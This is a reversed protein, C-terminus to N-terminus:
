RKYALIMDQYNLYVKRKCWSGYDVRKIEFGLQAYLNWILDEELGIVKEPVERSVTRYGDFKYKFDFDSNGADVLALSEEDLLFYTILCRGDQKLVRHIESLYNEVEAPLMHTFVSGLMVFSFTEDDFPFRYKEPQHSGLPNYFKNYVDIHQFQFNPFRPTIKESCWDVGVKTLDIGWYIANDNFYRTLPLTKRGIGSGVDLMVEDQELGCIEQYIELFSEGNSKFHQLSPPGDFMDEVAPVLSAYDGFLKEKLKAERYARIKLKIPSPIIRKVINLM